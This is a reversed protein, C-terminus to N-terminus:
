GACLQVLIGDEPGTYNPTTKFTISRYTSTLRITGSADNNSSTGITNSPTGSVSSGSVTFGPEGSLRSLQTGAPFDIRSGLSALEIIPNTTPAGFDITYSYGTYGSIQIEDSKTLAPSFAPGAFYPWSGDVRSTPTNWVHSGSLKVGAGLLTGTATNASVSTWDTAVPVAQAQAAAPAGAVIAALTCLTLTWTQARRSMRVAHTHSM